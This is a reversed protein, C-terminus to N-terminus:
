PSPPQRLRRWASAVPKGRAKALDALKTSCGPPVLLKPKVSGGFSFRVPKPGSPSGGGPLGIPKPRCPAESAFRWLKPKSPSGVPFLALKPQCEQRGSFVSRSLGVRVKRVPPGGLSRGSASCRVTFPLPKPGLRSGPSGGPSRGSRRELLGSGAETPSLSWLISSAAEALVDKRPSSFPSRNSRPDL